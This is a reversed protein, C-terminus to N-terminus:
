IPKNNLKLLEDLELKRFEEKQSQYNVRLKTVIEIELALSKTSLNYYCKLREDLIQHTEQVAEIITHHDIPVGRRLSEDIEKLLYIADSLDNILYNARQHDNSNTISKCKGLMYDLDILLKLYGITNGNVNFIESNMRIEHLYFYEYPSEGREIREIKEHIRSTGPSYSTMQDITRVFLNQRSLTKRATEEYTIQPKEKPQHTSIAFVIVIVVSLTIIIITMADMDTVMCIHHGM